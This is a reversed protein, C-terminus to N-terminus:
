VVVSLNTGHRRINEARKEGNRDRGGLGIRIPKAGPAAVNLAAEAAGGPLTNTEDHRLIFVPAERSGRSITGNLFQDAVLDGIIVIRKKPFLNTITTKIDTMSIIYVTFGSFVFITSSATDEVM